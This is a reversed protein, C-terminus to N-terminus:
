FGTKNLASLATVLQELESRQHDARLVIRSYRPSEPGPYPFSSIAIGQQALRPVWSHQQVAIVPYKPLFHLDPHHRLGEQVYRISAQLAKRQQEILDSARLFAYIPGPAPPSAGGFLPNERLQAIFEATGLIVGAPLALAKGLSAIVALEGAWRRSLHFWSGAGGPGLLGMVHSDDVVLMGAGTTPLTSWDPQRVALPDIADTLSAAGQLQLSTAWNHYHKYTKGNTGWLAPHVRPSYHFQRQQTSLYRVVLQGASTGSSTLLAAPAGTWRALYTEAKDFIDPTLLSRRSGGYHGGYRGM